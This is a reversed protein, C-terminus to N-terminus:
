KMNDRFKPVNTPKKSETSARADDVKTLSVQPMHGDRKKALAIDEEAEEEISNSLRASGHLGGGGLPPEALRKKKSL